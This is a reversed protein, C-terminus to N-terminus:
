EAAGAVAVDDEEEHVVLPLQAAISEVADRTDTRRALRECGCEPDLESVSLSLNRRWHESGSEVRPWIAPMQRACVSTSGSGDGAPWPRGRGRGTVQRRHGGPPLGPLQHRPDAVVGRVEVASRSELLPRIRALYKRPFNPLSATSHAVDSHQKALAALMSACSCASVLM